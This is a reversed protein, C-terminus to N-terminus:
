EVVLSELNAAVQPLAEGVARAVDREVALPDVVLGLEIQGDRQLSVRAVAGAAIIAAADGRDLVVMDAVEAEFRGITGERRLDLIADQGLAARDPERELLLEAAAPPDVAAGMIGLVAM